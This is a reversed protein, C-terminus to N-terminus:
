LILEMLSLGHLCLSVLLKDRYHARPVLDHERRQLYGLMVLSVRVQRAGQQAYHHKGSLRAIRMVSM